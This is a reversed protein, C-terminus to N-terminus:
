GAHTLAHTTFYTCGCTSDDPCESCGYACTEAWTTAVDKDYANVLSLLMLVLSFIKM